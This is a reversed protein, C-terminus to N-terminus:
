SSMRAFLDQLDEDLEVITEMTKAGHEVTGVVLFQDDADGDDLDLFWAQRGFAESDWVLVTRKGHVASEDGTEETSITLVVVDGERHLGFCADESLASGLHDLLVFLYEIAEDTLSLM